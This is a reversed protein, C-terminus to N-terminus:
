DAIIVKRKTITENINIVLFYVGSPHNSLDIKISNSDFPTQTLITKGTLSVLSLTTIAADSEITFQKSSPNPFIKIKENSTLNNSSLIIDGQVFVGISAEQFQGCGSEVKKIARVMYWDNQQYTLDIYEPAAIISSNIKNFVGFESDSKYINYGLISTDNSPAWSLTSHGNVENIILATPPKVQYLRISPDGNYTLHTRNWWDETDWQSQPTEINNNSTNHNIKEKIAYGLPDGSCTQYFTNITSTTWLSVICKTNSALLARIRGYGNGIQPCDNYGWYSQDSTYVTADMGYTDWESLDPAIQNQMYIKFPGNNQVWQPHIAGTTNEYVNVTKSINPLTRFSGDNSNNYGNHFATKEGMEFGNAVNKYNSLKDLYISTMEMETLNYSTIDFFDVRGFAMEIDSNLFDQDWKYDGPINIAELIQLGGPNFTATDSYVGDIDAYYGDFGRAGKNQDHADPATILTSGSRPMPVHGLIFLMKPKDNIPANNYISILQNKIDVVTDGSYWGSAKSVILENVFWGEGTLEKKLRLYKENLGNVIDNTVLVIMQGQYGSNDKLVSGVTYGIADFMQSNYTWSNQRRIQYEWVDGIVVDNDIWQDTGIPLNSVMLSWDTGSGYLPRRYITTTHTTNQTHDLLRIIVRPNSIEVESEVLCVRQGNSNFNFDFNQTFSIRALGLVLVLLVFSTKKMTPIKTSFNSIVEIM